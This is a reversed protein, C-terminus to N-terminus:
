VQRCEQIFLFAIMIMFGISAGHMMNGAVVCKARHTLTTASVVSAQMAQAIQATAPLGQLLMLETGHIFRNAKRLRIRCCGTTLTPFHNIGYRPRKEPNQNLDAVEWNQFREDYGQAGLGCAM